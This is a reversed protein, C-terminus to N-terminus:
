RVRSRGASASSRSPKRSSRAPRSTSSETSARTCKSRRRTVFLAQAIERNTSGEAAMDAVRRESPTLADVGSLAVRRPRAGTALLETEARDALPAAGCTTALELGNPSARARRRSPQRSAARCRVRGAGERVRSPVAVARPRRRGGAAVRDGRPRGRRTRRRCSISRTILRVGSERCSWSKSPMDGLTTM